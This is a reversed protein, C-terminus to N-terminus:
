DIQKILIDRPDNNAPRGDKTWACTYGVRDNPGVVVSGRFPYGSLKGHQLTARQGESTQYCKGLQLKLPGRETLIRDLLAEPNQILEIIRLVDGAASRPKVMNAEEQQKSLRL